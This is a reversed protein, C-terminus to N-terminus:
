EAKEEATPEIVEAEPEEVKVEPQEVEAVPEEVVAVPEVVEAVPEEVVAVPEEVVAVPEDVVAVVEAVPEEVAVEEQESLAQKALRASIAQARKRNKEIEADLKDKRQKEVDKLNGEFKAKIKAEKEKLWTQFKVEAQETTLAGKNVGKLLHNKYLVGKYSLIAKVTDSPQAGNQLWNIAKDIEINITAPITLPNYEGIREIFRGDRPARGDAVVIHYFPKGKKGHRQLRIRVAM